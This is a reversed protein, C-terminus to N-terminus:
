LGKGKGRKGKGKRPTHPKSSQQEHSQFRGTSSSAEGWFSRARPKPKRTTRIIKQEEEKSLLKPRTDDVRPDLKFSQKGALLHRRQQQIDEWSSRIWAASLSLTERDGTEINHVLLHMAQEMKKQANFLASDVRNKGRPPPTQPVHKYCPLSKESARLQDLPPPASLVQCLFQAGEQSPEVAVPRLLAGWSPPEEEEEEEDKDEETMDVDEQQKKKLDSLEKRLASLEALIQENSM